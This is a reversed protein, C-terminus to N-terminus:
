WGLLRRWWPWGGPQYVSMGNLAERLAQDSEHREASFVRSSRMGVRYPGRMSSEPKTTYCVTCQSAGKGRVVRELAFGTARRGM